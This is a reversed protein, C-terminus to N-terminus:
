HVDTLIDSKSLGAKELISGIKSSAEALKKDAAATDRKPTQLAKAEDAYGEALQDVGAQLDKQYKGLKAPVKEKKLEDSAQQASESAPKAAKKLDAESPKPDLGTMNQYASLDHVKDSVKDSLNMYYDLVTTKSVSKSKDKNSDNGSGCAVLAVALLLTFAAVLWKKM